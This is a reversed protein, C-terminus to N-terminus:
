FSYPVRFSLVNLIYFYKMAKNISHECNRVNRDNLQGTLCTVVTLHWKFLRSAIFNIEVILGSM